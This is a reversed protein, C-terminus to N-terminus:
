PLVDALRKRVMARQVKGSATRPLAEVFRVRKPVKYAAIQGRVFEIAAQEDLTCGPRLEVVATVVEGWHRDPMGVVAADQVSPHARLANEVQVPYVNEGGSVIMDKIRDTLYLYGQEDLYGGDGTAYWGDIVAERSADPRRWYGSMMVPTAVCVEGHARAPLVNGQADRIEIATGPLLRGVSSLLWPRQPDHDAPPLLTCTGIETAGYANSLACGLTARTLELLEPSIPAGGYMITRLHTLSSGSAQVADILARILTPVLWTLTVQYQNCMSILHPAAADRTLICTAGRALGTLLMTLGALHFVPVAILIRDDSQPPFGTANAEIQRSVSLARQSIMAGKPIGTTGSTYLLVCTLSEDAVTDAALPGDADLMSRLGAQRARDETEIVACSMKGSEVVADISSRFEADTVVLRPKADTLFYAIESPASRWNLAALIFGGRAAALTLVAFHDSNRGLYALRDGVQLGYSRLLSLARSIRHDLAAYTWVANAEHAILAIRDPTREAGVRVTQALTPMDAMAALVPGNVM